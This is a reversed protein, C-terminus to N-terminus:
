AHCVEECLNDLPQLPTDPLVVGDTSGIVIVRSSDVAKHFDDLYLKIFNKGCRCHSCFGIVEDMHSVVGVYGVMDVDGCCHSAKTVMVIDGVKISM